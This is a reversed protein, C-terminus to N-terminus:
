FRRDLKYVECVMFFKYNGFWKHIGCLKALNSLKTQKADLTDLSSV